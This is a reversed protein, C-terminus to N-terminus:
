RAVPRYLDDNNLMRRPGCRSPRGPERVVHLGTHHPGAVEPRDTVVVDVPHGAVTEALPKLARRIERRATYDLDDYIAMLDIDSRETADGRAVSGFLVVKAVGADALAVAAREADALGPPASTRLVM